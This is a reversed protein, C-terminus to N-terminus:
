ALGTAIARLAVGAAGEEGARWIMPTVIASMARPLVHRRVRDGQALDLVSEPVIAVGSGAAVCAVIAHYSAFELVRSVRQGGASWWGDALRRYACGSPFAILTADGLDDPQRVVRHGLSTILVLKERFLPASAIRPDDPTEAVFALDVKRDLLAATMGDNTGTVLEIAVDPHAAHFASLIEPLRSAATSELSGVRLTGRPAGSGIAARAEDALRLLQDAYALLREGDPSLHLRQRDRFFLQAGVSEELQKIRTTVNSQVRHLVRAARGVGGERAVARFIVLDALDMPRLMCEDKMVFLENM